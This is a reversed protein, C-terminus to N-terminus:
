EGVHIRALQWTMAYTDFYMEYVDSTGAMLSFHHLPHAGKRTVWAYAIRSVSLTRGSWKFRLPEVRGKRFVSLVEIPENVDQVM